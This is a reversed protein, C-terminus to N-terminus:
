GTRSLTATRVGRRLLAPLCLITGLAGIWVAARLGGLATTAAALLSGLAVAGWLLFRQVAAVRGLLEPPTRTQRLTVSIPNFAGEGVCHVVSGVILGVAGLGGPAGLVPMAVIGLVSVTAALM